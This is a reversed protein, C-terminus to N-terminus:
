PRTLNASVRGLLDLLMRREAASLGATTRRDLEAWVATVDASADRGKATLMVRVARRDGTSGQRVLHGTRELSALTRSMTGPEVCAGAALEAAGRGDQEALLCLVVEQGPHLGLEGLLRGALNRHARALRVITYSVDDPLGEPM